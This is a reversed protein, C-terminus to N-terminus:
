IKIKCPTMPNSYTCIIFWMCIFFIKLCSSMLVDNRKDEWVRTINVIHVLICDPNLTLWRWNWIKEVIQKRKVITIVVVNLTLSRLVCVFQEKILWRQIQDSIQLLNSNMDFYIHFEIWPFTQNDFDSRKINRLHILSGIQLVCYKVM